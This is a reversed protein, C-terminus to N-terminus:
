NLYNNFISEVFPSIAAYTIASTFAVISAERLRQTLNIGKPSEIFNNFGRVFRSLRSPKQVTEELKTQAPIIEAPSNEIESLAELQSAEPERPQQTKNKGIPSERRKVEYGLEEMEKIVEYLKTRSISFERALKKASVGNANYADLLKQKRKDTILLAERIQQRSVQYNIALQDIARKHLIGNNATISRYSEAVREADLTQTMQAM